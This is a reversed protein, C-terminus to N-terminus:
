DKQDLFLMHERFLNMWKPVKNVSNIRSKFKRKLKEAEEQNLGSSVEYSIKDGLMTRKKKNIATVGFSVPDKFLPSGEQLGFTAPSVLNIYKTNRELFEVSEIFEEKTESPFGFLMYVVNKIGSEKSNKLVVEIDEVNTGKKIVDLIRNCGSEVGWLVVKLGSDYLIELTEKDWIKNPRLQCMWDIQLEKMIKAIDLLRKKHNMDDIIFVKKAKSKILTEKIEELSYEKYKLNRHHTCFTCLQYYCTNVTKIPVVIEPIFYDKYISFDLVRKKTKEIIGIKKFLAQEDKLFTAFELLKHNVAPGGVFCDIGEKKLKQLLSYAYFVQSSYVISFAIYDAKKSKILDIFEQLYTPDEGRIVKKNENSYMRTSEAFYDKPDKNTQFTKKAEPFYKQHYLLNLDLIEVEFDSNSNIASFLNTLSYPPTVPSCFPPYILLIKM